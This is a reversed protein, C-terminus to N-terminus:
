LDFYGDAEKSISNLLALLMSNLHCSNKVNKLLTTALGIGTEISVCGSESSEDM